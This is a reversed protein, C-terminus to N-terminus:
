RAVLAKAYEPDVSRCDQCVGSTARGPKFSVRVGCRLCPRTDKREPPNRPTTMAAHTDQQACRERYAWGGCTRCRSLHRDEGTLDKM